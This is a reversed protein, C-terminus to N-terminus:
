LIILEVSTTFNKTHRRCIMTARAKTAMTAARGTSTFSGRLIRRESKSWCASPPYLNLYPNKISIPLYLQLCSYCSNKEIIINNIYM